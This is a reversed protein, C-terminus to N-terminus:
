RQRSRSSLHTVVVVAKNGVNDSVIGKELVVNIFALSAMSSLNPSSVPSICQSSVGVVCVRAAHGCGISKAAMSRRVCRVSRVVKVVAMLKHCLGRSDVEM